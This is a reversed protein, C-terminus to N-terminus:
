DNMYVTQYSGIDYAQLTTRVTNPGIVPQMVNKSCTPSFCSTAGKEHCHAVGLVHGLEHLVVSKVDHCNAKKGISWSTSSSLTLKAGLMENYKGNYVYTPETYGVTGPVLFGMVISSGGTGTGQTRIMFVRSKKTVPDTVRNWLNMAATAENAYNSPLSSVNISIIRPTNGWRIGTSLRPQVTDASVSFETYSPFVALMVLALFLSFFKKCTKM